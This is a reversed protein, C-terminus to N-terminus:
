SPRIHNFQPIRLPLLLKRHLNNHDLLVLDIRRQEKDLQQQQHKHSQRNKRIESDSRRLFPLLLQRKSLGSQKCELLIHQQQQQHHQHQQQQQHHHEIQISNTPYLHKSLTVRLKIFGNFGNLNCDIWKFVFLFCDGLSSRLAIARAIM